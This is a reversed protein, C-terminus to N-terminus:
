SQRWRGADPLSPVIRFLSEAESVLGLLVDPGPVCCSLLGIQHVVGPMFGQVMIGFM